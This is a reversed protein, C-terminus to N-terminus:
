EQGVDTHEKLWVAAIINMDLDYVRAVRAITDLYPHGGSEMAHIATHSLGALKAAGDLTMGLRKRTSHMLSRLTAHQDIVQKPMPVFDIGDIIVRM